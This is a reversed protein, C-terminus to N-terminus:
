NILVIYFWAIYEALSIRIYLQQEYDNMYTTQM